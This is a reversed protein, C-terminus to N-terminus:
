ELAVKPSNGGAGVHWVPAPLIPKKGLDESLRNVFTSKVRSYCPSRDRDGMHKGVLWDIYNGSTLAMLGKAFQPITLRTVRGHQSLVTRRWLWMSVTLSVSSWLRFYEPDRGWAGQACNLFQVAQAADDDTMGKAITIASANSTPCEAASAFWCRIVTSMGVIPGAKVNRRINDYGVFDCHRRIYVLAPITGELGRLVDDPKMKVISSNLNVFEEGMEAMNDFTCIRVDAYAEGLGSLTYALVRHQGDVIYWQRGVIGITLVGPLCCSNHKIEEALMRVKDNERLPRQFPPAAWTKVLDQTLRITEMKSRVAVPAARLAPIKGDKIAVVNSM